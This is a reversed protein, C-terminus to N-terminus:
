IDLHEVEVKNLIAGIFKDKHLQLFEISEKDLNSFNADAAFVAVMGDAYNILEMTDTYENLPAGELFIFDYEEKMQDLYLLLHNKPLIESPTYDGGKCGIVGVRAINTPSVLKSVDNRNFPKNGPDFDELVPTANVNKTLDNNCFNTDIMLVSKKGLSLIYALAQILVTKGQQPITSTFLIVRKNSTELEYRLKRLLELFTDGRAKEESDFVAIRELVIVQGNLKIRNV